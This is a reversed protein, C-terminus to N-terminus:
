PKEKKDKVKLGLDENIRLKERSRGRELYSYVKSQKSGHILSTLAQMAKKIEETRGILGVTNGHLSIFCDSLSELVSKTKGRTGIIRARVSELDHRKTIDKINIKELIIDEEKLLLAQELSFGLDLAEIANVAIYEDITAGELSINKGSFYIRVNLSKELRKKNQKIKNVANCHLIEM